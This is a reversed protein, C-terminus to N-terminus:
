RGAQKKLLRRKISVLEGLVRWFSRRISLRSDPDCVWEVGFEAIRYGKLRALLIIEIDFAFGDTKCEGYLERAVDGKYIKFGCQTDTLEAPVKMYLALLRRFMWSCLRRCLGQHKHIRSEAHKRSAHAIDIGSDEDSLVKLGTLANDYPVCCGCDAFMVYEGKSAGIGLRVAHGKGRNEPYGEVVLRVGEAIEAGRAAEATGDRSGDDVVIIEGTFGNGVVFDSALKIDRAVKKQEEYVPIIISIDM